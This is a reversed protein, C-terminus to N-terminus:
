VSAGLVTQKSKKLPLRRCNGALVNEIAKVYRGKVNDCVIRVKASIDTIPRIKLWDAEEAVLDTTKPTPETTELEVVRKERKKISKVLSQRRKRLDNAETESIPSLTKLARNIDLLSAEYNEFHDFVFSRAIYADRLEKSDVDASAISENYLEL